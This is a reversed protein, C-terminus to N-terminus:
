QNFLQIYTATCYALKFCENPKKVIHYHPKEYLINLNLLHKDHDCFHVIKFLTSLLVVFLSRPMCAYLSLKFIRFERNTCVTM